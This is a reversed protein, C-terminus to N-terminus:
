LFRAYEDLARALEEVVRSDKSVTVDEDMGFADGEMFITRKASFQKMAPRLVTAASPDERVLAMWMKQLRIPMREMAEAAVESTPKTSWGHVGYTQLHGDRESNRVTGHRHVHTWVLHPVVGRKFIDLLRAKLERRPPVPELAFWCEPDTAGQAVTDLAGELRRSMASLESGADLTVALKSVATVFGRLLEVADPAEDRSNQAVSEESTVELVPTDKGLPHDRARNKAKCHDIICQRRDRRHGCVSCEYEKRM